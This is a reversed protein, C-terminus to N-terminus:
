NVLFSEIKRQNIYIDIVAFDYGDDHHGFKVKPTITWGQPAPVYEALQRSIDSEIGEADRATRFVLDEINAGFNYDGLVDGNSTSMVNKIKQALEETVSDHEVASPDYGNEDAARTYIEKIM